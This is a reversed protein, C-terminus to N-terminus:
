ATEADSPEEVATNPLNRGAGAVRMYTWPALLVTKLHPDHHYMWPKFDVEKPEGGVQLDDDPTAPTFKPNTEYPFNWVPNYQESANRDLIGPPTVVQWSGRAGAAMGVTRALGYANILRGVEMRSQLKLNGSILLGAGPDNREGEVHHFEFSAQRKAFEITMTQDLYKDAGFLERGYDVPIQQDLWIKYVYAFGAKDDFLQLQQLPQTVVPGPRDEHWVSFVWILEKYPGLVTDKYDVVWLTMLARGDSDLMPIWPGDLRRRIADADASGWVVLVEADYNHYPLRCVVGSRLQV